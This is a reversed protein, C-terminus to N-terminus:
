SLSRSIVSLISFFFVSFYVGIGCSEFVMVACCSNLYTHYNEVSDEVGCLNISFDDRIYLKIGYEDLIILFFSGM